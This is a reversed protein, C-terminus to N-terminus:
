GVSAPSARNRPCARVGSSDRRPRSWRTSARSRRWPQSRVLPEVELTRNESPTARTADAPIDRSARTEALKDLGSVRARRQRSSGRTRKKVGASAGSSFEGTADCRRASGRRPRRRGRRGARVDGRRRAGDPTQNPHSARARRQHRARVRARGRRGRARRARSVEPASGAASSSARRERPAGAGGGRPYDGGRRLRDGRVELADGGRTRTAATAERAERGEKGTTRLLFSGDISRYFFRWGRTSQM